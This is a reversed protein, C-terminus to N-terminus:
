RVRIYCVTFCLKEGLDDHGVPSIRHPQASTLYGFTSKVNMPCCRNMHIVSADDLPPADRHPDADRQSLLGDGDSPPRAVRTRAWGIPACAGPHASHRSAVLDQMWVRGKSDLSLYLFGCLEM